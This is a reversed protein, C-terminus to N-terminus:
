ASRRDQKEVYPQERKRIQRNLAGLLQVVSALPKPLNHVTNRAMLQRRTILELNDLRIDLRNGNCFRLAHGKPIAGNAAIWIRYHEPIWNKTWSVHRIESVKRYVYGDVLRTSWLPMTNISPQGKKFQTEKMRGPGWGPRRLGKNAPVHGKPFRYPAGVHDGRRLRCAHPGALYAESKYLGLTGARGYIAEVTRRLRAAIAPNPTDPYLARLLKDDKRSWLRRGARFRDGPQADLPRMFRRRRRRATVSARRRRRSGNVLALAAAIIRDLRDM